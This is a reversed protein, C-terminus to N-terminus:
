AGQSGSLTLGIITKRPSQCEAHCRTDFSRTSQHLRSPWSCTFWCSNYSQSQGSHSYRPVYGATSWAEQCRYQDGTKEQSSASWCWTLPWGSAITTSRADLERAKGAHYDASAVHSQYEKSGYMYKNAANGHATAAIRHDSAALHKDSSGERAHAQATANRANATAAHQDHTNSFPKNGLMAPHVPVRTANHAGGGTEVGRNLNAKGGERAVMGHHSAQEAHHAAAAVHRQSDPSTTKDNLALNGTLKGHVTRANAHARQAALHDAATGTRVAKETAANAKATATAAKAEGGKYADHERALKEHIAATKHDGLARYTASARRHADAAAQHTGPAGHRADISAQRANDSALKKTEAESLTGMRNFGTGGTMQHKSPFGNTTGRTPPHTKGSVNGRDAKASHEAALADHVKAHEYSGAARHAEAAHQHASAAQAHAHTTGSMNANHSRAAAVDALKLAKNVRARGKATGRSFKAPPM